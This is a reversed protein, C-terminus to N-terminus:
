VVEEERRAATGLALRKLEQLHERKDQADGKGEALLWARKVIPEEAHEELWSGLLGEWYSLKM